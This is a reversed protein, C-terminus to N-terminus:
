AMDAYKGHKSRPEKVHGTPQMYSPVRKKPEAAKEASELADGILDKM